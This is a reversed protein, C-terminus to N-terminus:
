KREGYDNEKLFDILSKTRENESVYDHRMRYLQPILKKRVFNNEEETSELSDDGSASGKDKLSLKYLADFNGLILLHSKARSLAVNMRRVNSTFGFRVTRVLSVIVLDYERGQFRDFTGIQVGPIKVTRLNRRLYNEQPRYGTIIGITQISPFETRRSQFEKLFSIVADAEEINYFSTGFAMENGNIQACLVDNATSNKEDILDFGKHISYIPEILSFIGKNMRYQRKMVAVYPNEDFSDIQHLENYSVFQHLLNSFSSRNINEWAEMSFLSQTSPSTNEYKEFMPDLQMFDGILILHKIKPLSIVLDEFRCKSAEDIIAYDFLLSRGDSDNFLKAIQNTTMSILSGDSKESLQFMNNFTVGRGEFYLKASAEGDGSVITNLEGAYEFVFNRATEEDWGDNVLMSIRSKVGNIATELREQEKSLIRIDIEFKNLYTAYGDIVDANQTYETHILISICLSQILISKKSREISEEKQKLEQSQKHNEGLANEASELENRKDILSQQQKEIETLIRKNKTTAAALKKTMGAVTEKETQWKAETESATAEANRIATCIEEHKQEYDAIIRISDDKMKALSEENLCSGICHLLLDKIYYKFKKIENSISESCKLYYANNEGNLKVFPFVTMMKKKLGATKYYAYLKGINRMVGADLLEQLLAERQYQYNLYEITDPSLDGLGNWFNEDQCLVHYIEGLKHLRSLVPALLEQYDYNSPNNNCIAVSYIEEKIKDSTLQNLFLLHSRAQETLREYERKEQELREIEAKKRNLADEIEKLKAYQVVLTGNLERVVTEQAKGKEIVANHEKEAVRVSDQAQSVSELLNEEEQNLASIQNCLASKENEIQALRARYIDAQKLLSNYRAMHSEYAQKSESLTRKKASIENIDKLIEDYAEKSQIVIKGCRFGELVQNDVYKIKNELVEKDYQEGKIATYRKLVMDKNNKFREVINDCAVHVNSTILTNYRAKSLEKALALILETKGTGPPGQILMFDIHHREMQMVKDIATLQEPNNKLIPYLTKLQSIYAENEVYANDEINCTKDIDCLCVSEVLRENAVRGLMASTIGDTVRKLRIKEGILNESLWCQVASEDTLLRKFENIDRDGLQTFDLMLLSENKGLMVGENNLASLYQKIDDKSLTTTAAENFDHVSTKQDVDGITLSLSRLREAKGFIPVILLSEDVALTNFLEYNQRLLNLNVEIKVSLEKENLDNYQRHYYQLAPLLMDETPLSSFVRIDMQSTQYVVYPFSDDVVSNDAFEYFQVKRADDDTKQFFRLAFALVCRPEEVSFGVIIADQSDAFATDFTEKNESPLIEISSIKARYKDGSYDSVMINKPVRDEGPVLKKAGRRVREVCLDIEYCSFCSDNDLIEQVLNATTFSQGIIRPNDKKEVIVPQNEDATENNEDEDDEEDDEDDNEDDVNTVSPTASQHAQFATAIEAFMGVKEINSVLVGKKTLIECFHSTCERAEQEADNESTYIYESVKRSAYYLLIKVVDGVVIKTKWNSSEM